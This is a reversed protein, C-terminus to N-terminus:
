LIQNESAIDDSLKKNYIAGSTYDQINYKNLYIDSLKKYERWINSFNHGPFVM